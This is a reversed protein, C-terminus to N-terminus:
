DAKYRIAFIGILFNVVLAFSNSIIIIWDSKMIGYFIWLALGAFLVVLMLVSVGEAKKEKILKILQPLLATSTFVSAGIGVLTEISM